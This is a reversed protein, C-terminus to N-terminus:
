IMDFHSKCYPYGAAMQEYNCAHAYHDDGTKIYKYKSVGTDDNTNLVKAIRSLQKFFVSEVEPNGVPVVYRRALWDDVMNDLSITRHATVIRTDKNWRVERKAAETYHCVYVSKFTFALDRAPVANPNGDIVCCTPKLRKILEALREFPDNGPTFRPRELGIVKRKGNALLKTIVINLEIGQDVGMFILESPNERIASLPYSDGYCHRLIEQTLPMKDGAYPMGLKSNYFEDRDRGSEWLEMIDSLPEVTSFLQTLHYGRMDEKNQDNRPVWGIYEGVRAPECPNLDEKGCKPCRLFYFGDREGVCSMDLHYDELVIGERCRCAIHWYRMDTDHWREDVGYDPLTPTSLEMVWRFPSHSIREIAQQKNSRKVEDLEDFLLFDAPVSKVNKKAWMGRMYLSSMGIQKLGVNDVGRVINSLYPSSSLIPRVRDNSFDSVLEESPLFFVVRRNPYRDCFWLAATLALESAGMQAAKEFVLYRYGQMFTEYPERLYEHGEFSFPHGNFTRHSEAWQKLTLSTPVYGRLQEKGEDM